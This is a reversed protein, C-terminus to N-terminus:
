WFLGHGFVYMNVTGFLINYLLMITSYIIFTKIPESKMLADYVYSWM